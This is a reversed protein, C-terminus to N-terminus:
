WIHNKYEEVLEIDSWSVYFGHYEDIGYNNGSSVLVGNIVLSDQPSLRVFNTNVKHLYSSSDEPYFGVAALNNEFFILGLRGPEGLHQYPFLTSSLGNRKGNFELEVSVVREVDNWTQHSYFDDVLHVRDNTDCATMILAIILIINRNM